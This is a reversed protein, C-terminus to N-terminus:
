SMGCPNGAVTCASPRVPGTVQKTAEFGFRATAGPALPGGTFVDTDGQRTLTADWATTVRVGASGAHTVVVRWAAPAPGNNVVTVQVVFGTDWTTRVDYFAALIPVRVAATAGPGPAPPAAATRTPPRPPHTRRPFASPPRSPVPTVAGLSATAPLRAAATDDHRDADVLVFGWIVTAVAAGYAVATWLRRLWPDDPPLFRGLGRRAPFHRGAL